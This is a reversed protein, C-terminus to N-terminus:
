FYVDDSDKQYRTHMPYGEQYSLSVLPKGDNQPGHTHRSLKEVKEITESVIRQFRKVEERMREIKRDSDIESWHQERSAKLEEMREEVQFLNKTRCVPCTWGKFKIDCVVARGSQPTWWCFKCKLNEMM